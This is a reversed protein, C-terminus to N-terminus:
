VQLTQLVVVGDQEGTDVDAGVVALVAVRKTPLRHCSRYLYVTVRERLYDTVRETYTIQSM